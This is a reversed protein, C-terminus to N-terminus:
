PLVLVPCPALQIVRAATSQSNQELNIGKTGMIILDVNLEDAVDCITFPPKGSREIAECILGHDEVETKLRNLKSKFSKQSHKESSEPQMVSILIMRSKQNLAFQIANSETELSKRSQDIPFLITKFM